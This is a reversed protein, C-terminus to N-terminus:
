ADDAEFLLGQEAMDQWGAKDVSYINSLKIITRLSIRKIRNRNVDIWELLENKVKSTFGYSKLMDQVLVM